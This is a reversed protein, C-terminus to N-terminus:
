QITKKSIYELCIASLLNNEKVLKTYEKRSKIKREKIMQLSKEYAREM